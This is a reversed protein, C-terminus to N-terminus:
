KRWNTFLQLSIILLINIVRYFLLKAAVQFYALLNYILGLNKQPAM